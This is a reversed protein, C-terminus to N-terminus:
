WSPHIFWRIGASLADRVRRPRSPRVFLAVGAGLLGLWVPATRVITPQAGRRTEVRHPVYGPIFRRVSLNAIRVRRELSVPDPAEFRAEGAGIDTLLDYCNAHSAPASRTRAEIIECATTVNARSLFPHIQHAKADSEVSRTTFRITAVATSPTLGILLFGAAVGAAPVGARALLTRATWRRAPAHAPAEHARQREAVVVGLGAILWFCRYTGSVTLSDLFAASALGAFVGALCAAGILRDDPPARRSPLLAAITVGLLLVLGAVGIVGMEGYIQLYSSDTTPFGAVSLSSLGRGILPRAAASSLIVPLREERILTSGAVEPASFTQQVASTGILAVAALAAGVGVVKLVRRDFRSALVLVVAVLPVGLYASRTYTWMIALVLLAPSARVILSRARVTASIVVPLLMMAAWAYALSFDLGVQARVADGRFGLRGPAFAVYRRGNLLRALYRGFGSQTYHEGVAIAATALAIVAIMGTVWRVNGIARIAAVVFTTFVLQEVFYAWIFTSAAVTVEGESLAVGVLFTIAVWLYLATTLRTPRFVSLPLEGRVVKLLINVCFLALVVRHYTGYNSGLPLIPLNGPIALTVALLGILALRVSSRVYLVGAILAFGFAIAQTM